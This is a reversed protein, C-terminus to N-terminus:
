PSIGLFLVKLQCDQREFHDVRFFLFSLVNILDVGLSQELLDLLQVDGEVPPVLPELGLKGVHLLRM